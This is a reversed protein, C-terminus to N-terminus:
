AGQRRFRQRRLYFWQLLYNMVGCVLCTAVMIVIVVTVEKKGIPQITLSGLSETTYCIVGLVVVNAILLMLLGRNTWLPRKWPASQYIFVPLM